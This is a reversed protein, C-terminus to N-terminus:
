VFYEPTRMYLSNREGAREQEEKRGETLGVAWGTLCGHRKLTTPALLCDLLRGTFRFVRVGCSGTPEQWVYDGEWLDEISCSRM